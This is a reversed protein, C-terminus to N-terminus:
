ETAIIPIGCKATSFYFKIQSFMIFEYFGYGWYILGNGAIVRPEQVYGLPLSFM